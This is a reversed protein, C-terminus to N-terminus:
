VREAAVVRTGAAKDQLGLYTREDRLMMMLSIALGLYCPLTLAAMVLARWAAKGSSPREGTAADVVKIQAIRKGLTQGRKAVPLWHYCFTAVLLLVISVLACVAMVTGEEDGMAASIGVSTLMLVFWGGFLMGFTVAIDIGFALWRFLVTAAGYQNARQTGGATYGPQPQPPHPPQQPQQSAPAFRPQGPAAGQPYGPPGYGPAPHQPGGGPQQHPQQPQQEYEYPSSM